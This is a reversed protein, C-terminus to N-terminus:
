TNDIGAEIHESPFDYGGFEFDNKYMRYLRLITTKTLQHFYKLYADKKTEKCNDTCNNKKKQKYPYMLAKNKPFKELLIQFDDLFDEVHGVLDYQVYCVRCLETYPWWHINKAEALVYDIFCSFTFQVSPKALCPDNSKMNMYMKQYNQIKLKEIYTDWNKTKVFKDNYASALREFPHRVFVFKYIDSHNLRALERLNRARLSHKLHNFWEHIGGKRRALDARNISNMQYFTYKLTSSASKPVECFGMTRVSDTLLAMAGKFYGRPLDKLIFKGVSEILIFLSKYYPLDSITKFYM